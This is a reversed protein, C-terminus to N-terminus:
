SAMWAAPHVQDRYSGASILYFLSANLLAMEVFQEKMVWHM